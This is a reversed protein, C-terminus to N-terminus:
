RSGCSAPTWNDQPLLPEPIRALTLNWGDPALARETAVAGTRRNVKVLRPASWGEGALEIGYLQEGDDSAALRAFYAGPALRGTVAGSASDIEFVGGPAATACGERRDLKMGFTEFLFLHGGGAILRQMVPECQAALDPLPVRLAAGLAGAEPTVKWLSGQAGDLAYLYYTSGLWAGSSGQYPVPLRKVMVNRQLDFFDLSPGAFNTVGALWRGDPSPALAYVGPARIAPLRAFTAADAADIGVNGRSVFVRSGDAAPVSALAPEIVICMRRSELDLAYVACCSTPKSQMAGAVFLVRGDPRVSVSEAMSGTHISGIPSLTAPDFVEVSGGRRSALVVTRADDALACASLICLWVPLRWSRM